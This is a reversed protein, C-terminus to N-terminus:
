RTGEASERDLAPVDHARLFGDVATPWGFREARARAAARRDAEPRDLVDRIAAALAGRHGTRVELMGTV